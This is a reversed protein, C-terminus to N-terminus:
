GGLLMYQLATRRATDELGLARLTAIGESFAMRDGALGQEVTSIARLIAEGTRRENVMALMAADPATAFADRVQDSRPRTAREGSPDGKALAALFPDTTALTDNLGATEYTDSLLLMRFLVARGEPAVDALVLAPGYFQALPVLVGARGAETWVHDLATALAVPDRARLAADLQRVARAREWVGGSAAPVRGTYIGVLRNEDIAGVAALREAAELQAKWGVNDRLDANSFARPLNQTSLPQGIAERMRFVLPSTRAPAALPAEGEFLDPDLFRALLDAMDPDIDGLVAATNLTLAAANWDGTRALCFVRAAPTPAVAPRSRLARCANTETGTLLSVDFWRRFSDPTDPVMNPSATELLAQAAEVDGQDLLKDVRALFFRGTKADASNAEDAPADATTLVLLTLLDTLAPLTEIREAQMLATLTDGESGTWLDVPLGSAAAALVGLAHPAPSGLAQVAVNPSSATGTVPPEDAPPTRTARSGPDTRLPPLAVTAPQEVSESLWDIASLPEDDPFQAPSQALVPGISLVGVLVPVGILRLKCLM